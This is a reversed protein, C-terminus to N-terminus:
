LLLSTTFCPNMESEHIKALEDIVNNELFQDAGVVALLAGGSILFTQTLKWILSIIKWQNNM